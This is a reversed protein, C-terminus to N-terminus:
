SKVPVCSPDLPCGVVSSSEVAVNMANPMSAPMTIRLTVSPDTPVTTETATTETATM